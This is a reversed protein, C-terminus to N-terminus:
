EEIELFLEAFYGGDRVFIQGGNILVRVGDSRPYLLQHNQWARDDIETVYVGDELQLLVLDSSGPVFDYWVVTQGKSDLRIESRCTQGFWTGREFIATSSAVQYKALSETVHAGYQATTSAAPATPVCFYYPINRLAGRYEAYVEDDRRILAVDNRIVTSTASTTAVSTPSSTAFRFRPVDPEPYVPRERNSFVTELFTYEPNAQWTTTATSSSYTVSVTTSAFQFPLTTTSAYGLFVPEGELSAYETIPRLQPTVPITFAAAETVIQEYVPLEKVWTQLGDGQVHVQHVGPLLGQVYTAQRFFRTNEVPADNVFIESDEVQTSIYMGGTVTVSPSEAFFDYRYGNAYFGLLPVIVIFVGLLIYFFVSRHGQGLPTVAPSNSM